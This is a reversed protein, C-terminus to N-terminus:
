VHLQAWVGVTVVGKFVMRVTVIGLLWKCVVTGLITQFFHHAKFTHQKCPRCASKFWKLQWPKRWLTGPLKYVYVYLIREIIRIWSEVSYSESYPHNMETLNLGPDAPHDTKFQLRKQLFQGLSISFSLPGGGNRRCRLQAATPATIHSRIRWTLEVTPQPPCFICSQHSEKRGLRDADWPTAQFRPAEPPRGEKEAPSPRKNQWWCWCSCERPGGHRHGFAHCDPSALPLHRHLVWVRGKGREWLGSPPLKHFALVWFELSSELPVQQSFWM